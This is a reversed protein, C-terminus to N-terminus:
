PDPSATPPWYSHEDTMPSMLGVHNGDPDAVIAYRAGWFADYPPQVGPHGADVVRRYVEDVGERTSVGLSVIASPGGGPRRYAAGWSKALEADDLDIETAGDPQPIELHPQPGDDPVPLGLLRYFAAAATTDAVVLTVGTLRVTPETV